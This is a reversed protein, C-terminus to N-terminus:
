LLVKGLGVKKKKKKGAAGCCIASGPWPDSRLWLRLGLRLQPLVRDKVWLVSSPISGM